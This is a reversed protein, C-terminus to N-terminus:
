SNRYKYRVPLENLLERLEDPEVDYYYRNAAFNRADQNSLIKDEDKLYVSIKGNVSFRNLYSQPIYHQNKTKGAM